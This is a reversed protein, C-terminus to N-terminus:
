FKEVFKDRERLLEKLYEHEQLEGWSTKPRLHDIMFRLLKNSVRIDKHNHNVILRRDYPAECKNEVAKNMDKLMHYFDETLEVDWEMLSIDVKTKGRKKELYNIKYEQQEIKRDYERLIMRPSQKATRRSFKVHNFGRM